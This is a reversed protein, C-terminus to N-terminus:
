YLINKIKREWITAVANSVGYIVKKEKNNSDESLTSYIGLTLVNYIPKYVVNDLVKNYVKEQSIISGSIRSFKSKFEETQVASYGGVRM